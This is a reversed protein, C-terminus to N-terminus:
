TSNNKCFIWWFVHKQSGTQQKVVEPSTKLSTSSGRKGNELSWAAAVLCAAFPYPPYARARSDAFSDGNPLLKLKSSSSSDSYIIYTYIYIDTYRFRSNWIMRPFERAELDSKLMWGVPSSRHPAAGHPVHAEVAGPPVDIDGYSAAANDPDASQPWIYIYVYM